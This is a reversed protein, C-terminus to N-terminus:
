SRAQDDGMQYLGYAPFGLIGSMDHWTAAARCASAVPLVPVGAQQALRFPGKKLKQLEGDQSRTGEAFLVISTGRRLPQLARSLSAVARDTRGRDVPVFGSARVAM